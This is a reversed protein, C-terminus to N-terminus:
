NNQEPQIKRSNEREQEARATKNLLMHSYYQGPPRMRTTRGQYDQETQRM